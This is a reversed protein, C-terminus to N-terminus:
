YRIRPNLYVYAVDALLNCIGYAAAAVLCAAQILPIDRQSIAFVLLWGLGPYGFISEVVVLGGILWGLHLAVVTVTPALANRVAHGWVVRRRTLGKLTAMRVFASQMVNVISARTMRISHALLVLTLTIGPLLLNRFGEWLGAGAEIRSTPPLWGLWVSFVLILIPGTVFEPVSVAALSGISILHDVARGACVGAVIGLGVALPIALVFTFLALRLSAGLRGLVLGRVPLDMRLSEGWDGRVMGSLWDGYQVYAPRNLGLRQRLTALDEPTAQQGLIMTAVDGPLVQTMTFVVVSVLVLTVFLFGVRKLFFGVLHM